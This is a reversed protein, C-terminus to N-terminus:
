GTCKKIDTVLVYRYFRFRCLIDFLDPQVPYGKLMLDNLSLGTSTKSSADFVVRLKTSPADDRIVCHHPLFVRNKKEEEQMEIYKGHGLTIYEDILEKYGTFLELSKSFRVELSKLRKLALDFSEGLKLKNNRLPLEVQFSGNELRKHTEMFLNECARDEASLFKNNSFEELQWFRIIMKNLQGNECCVLNVGGSNRNFVSFSHANNSSYVTPARGCILWGLKTNQLVPLGDGLRIIEPLVIEYYMDASILVDIDSTKFFFPDALDIHEPIKIKSIDVAAQPLQCTIKELVAFQMETKYGNIQSELVLSVIKKALSTSNAIGGISINASSYKIGKLKKFLNSTIFSKQSGSDLLARAQVKYGSSTIINILATALLVQSDNNKAFASVSQEGQDVKSAGMNTGHSIGLYINNEGDQPM